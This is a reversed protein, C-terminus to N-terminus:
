TIRTLDLNLLQNWQVSAKYTLHVNFGNQEFVIRSTHSITKKINGGLTNSTDESWPECNYSKDKFLLRTEFRSKFIILTLM